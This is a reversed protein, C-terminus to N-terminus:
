YMYAGILSSCLRFNHVFITHDIDPQATSERSETADSTMQGTRIANLRLYFFYSHLVSPFKIDYSKMSLLVSQHSM